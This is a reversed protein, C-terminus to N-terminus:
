CVIIGIFRVVIKKFLKYIWNAEVLHIPSLMLFNRNILRIDNCRFFFVCSKGLKFIVAQVPFFFFWQGDDYRYYSNSYNEYQHQRFYEIKLPLNIGYDILLNIQCFISFASLNWISIFIFFFCICSNLHNLRLQFPRVLLGIFGWQSWFIINFFHIQLIWSIFNGRLVRDLILKSVM